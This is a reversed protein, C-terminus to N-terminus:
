IRSGPNYYDYARWSLDSTLYRADRANVPFVTNEQRHEIAHSLISSRLELPLGLLGRENQQNAITIQLKQAPNSRTPDSTSEPCLWIGYDAAAAATTM